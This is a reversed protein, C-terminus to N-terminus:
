YLLVCFRCQNEADFCQKNFKRAFEGNKPSNGGESRRESLNEKCFVPAGHIISSPRFNFNAGSISPPTVFHRFIAFDAALTNHGAVGDAVGVAFCFPSQSGVDLLGAHDDVARGLLNVDAGTAETGAFDLTGLQYFQLLYRV